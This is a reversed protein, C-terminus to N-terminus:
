PPNFLPWVRSENSWYLRARYLKRLAPIKEFAFKELRTYGRENRPILWAPTRQFVYLHKVQQPLKPCSQIPVGGTGSSVVNKGALDYNHDWQASHFVKGKFSELGKINPIQPVHLPGSAMVFHRCTWTEGGKTSISWLGTLEDFRAANVEQNFRCFPRIGY